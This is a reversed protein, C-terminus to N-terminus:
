KKVKRWVAADNLLGFINKSPRIDIQIVLDDHRKLRRAIETQASQFPQNNSAYESLAQVYLQQYRQGLMLIFEHSNFEEPMLGVIEHYKEELGEFASM